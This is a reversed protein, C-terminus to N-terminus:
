DDKKEEEEKTEEETEFLGLDTVKDNLSEATRCLMAERDPCPIDKEKCHAIIKDVLESTAVDAENGVYQIVQDEAKVKQGIGSAARDNGSYIAKRQITGDGNAVSYSVTVSGPYTQNDFSSKYPASAYMDIGVVKEKKTVDKGDVSLKTGEVTGNTTISIDAM